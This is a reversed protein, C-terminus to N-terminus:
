PVGEMLKDVVSKIEDQWIGTKEPSKWYPRIDELTWFSRPERELIYKPLFDPEAPIFLDESPITSGAAIDQSTKRGPKASNLALVSIFLILFIVILGGLGFLLPQRKREPIRDLFRDLVTRQKKVTTFARGPMDRFASRIKKLSEKIKKGLNTLDM